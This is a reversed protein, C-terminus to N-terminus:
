KLQSYDPFSTDQKAMFKVFAQTFWDEFWTSPVPVKLKIYNYLTEAVVNQCRRVLLASHTVVVHASYSETAFSRVYSDRIYGISIIETEIFKKLVTSKISGYTTEDKAVCFMIDPYRQYLEGITLNANGKQSEVIISDLDTAAGKEILIQLVNKHGFDHFEFESAHLTNFPEKLYRNTYNIM